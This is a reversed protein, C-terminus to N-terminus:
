RGRPTASTTTAASARPRAPLGPLEDLDLYAMRSRPPPLEHERVAFRRHRVTGEYLASATM